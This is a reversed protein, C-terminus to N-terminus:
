AKSQAVLFQQMAEFAKRRHSINNKQEATMQAFSIENGSPIFIPDYGFGKEGMMHQSIQGECVGEFLYKKGGLRLSIVTKFHAKRNTEHQLNHLLKEINKESSSPEGAYRASFVGPEGGLVDVFLGTDESFCDQQIREFVLGTKQEANEQLTFFPEPIEDYFGVDTLTRFEVDSGMIQSVEQLKHANHTCFVLAQM